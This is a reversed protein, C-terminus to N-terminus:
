YAGARAIVVKPLSKVLVVVIVVDAVATALKILQLNEINM